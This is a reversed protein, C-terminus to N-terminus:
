GMENILTSVLISALISELLCFLTIAEIIFGSWVPKIGILNVANLIRWSNVIRCDLPDLGSVQITTDNSM